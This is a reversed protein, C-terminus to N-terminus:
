WHQCASVAPGYKVVRRRGSIRVCGPRTRLKSLTRLFVSVQRFQVSHTNYRTPTRLRMLELRHGDSTCSSSALYQQCQVVVSCWDCGQLTTQTITATTQLCLCCCCYRRTSVQRTARETALVAVLMIIFDPRIKRRHYVTCLCLHQSGVLNGYPSTLQNDYIALRYECDVTM